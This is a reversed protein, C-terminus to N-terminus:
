AVESMHQVAVDLMFRIWSLDEGANDGHAGVHPQPLHRLYRPDAVGCQLGGGAIVQSYFGQVRCDIRNAVRNRRQRYELFVIDAISAVGAAVTLANLRLDLRDVGSVGAFVETQLLAHARVRQNEIVHRDVGLDDARVLVLAMVHVVQQVVVGRIDLRFPVRGIGVSGVLDVEPYQAHEAILECRAISVQVLFDIAQDSKLVRLM